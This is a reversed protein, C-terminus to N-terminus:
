KGRWKKLLGDKKENFSQMQTSAKKWLVEGKEKLGPGEEPIKFIDQQMGNQVWKNLEAIRVAGFPLPLNSALNQLLAQSIKPLAQYDYVTTNDPAWKDLNLLETHIDGGMEARLLETVIVPDGCAIVAGRDASYEAGIRWNLMWTKLTEGSGKGVFPIQPLLSDILKDLNYYLVSNFHIFTVAYGFMALLQQETAHNLCASSLVIACNKNTGVIDINYQYDDKLYIPVRRTEELRECAKVYQRYVDPLTMETVLFQRGQLEAFSTSDAYLKSMASLAASVVSNDKLTRLAEVEQKHRFDIM